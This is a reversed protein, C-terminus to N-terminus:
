IGSTSVDYLLTAEATVVESGDMRRLDGERDVTAILDGRSSKSRSALRSKALSGLRRGVRTSQEM